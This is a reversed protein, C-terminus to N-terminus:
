VLADREFGQVVQEKVPVKKEEAESILKDVSRESLWEREKCCVFEHIFECIDELRGSANIYVDSIGCLGQFAKADHELRSVIKDEPDGRKQMRRRLVDVPVHLGIVVIGKEGQYKEKFFDVGAPDIVYLDNKEVLDATVGYEFGNFRTYACMEGLAQFEEESVFIHGTEGEYRPPRTTYSSITKWGYERELAEAITTKGSGSPGVICYINNM